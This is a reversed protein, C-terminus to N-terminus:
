PLYELPNVPIGNLRVEFHLHPGTSLNGAGLTGPAGGTLGIIDGTNVYADEKVYIASVHGYVTSISNDHILTIYSYGYGADKARAVYGPAPAKIATGQAARLDIAPHEFIYRYPYDPDHFYSTIVHPPDLPWILLTDHVSRDGTSLQSLKTKVEEKLNAIENTIQSQRQQTDALLQEFKVESSQTELLLIEKAQNEALLKAEKNELEKKLNELATMQREKDTKQLTIASKLLKLREVSNQINNQIEGLYNLQSFFDAFSDNLIIIELYSKQDNKDILKLYESLNDKQSNIEKEEKNIAFELSKIELKTKDIQLQNAKIDLELKVIQHNLLELQNKLSAAKDQYEDIKQEYEKAAEQLNYITNENDKIQQNLEEIVSTTSANSFGASLILLGLIILLIQIKRQKM